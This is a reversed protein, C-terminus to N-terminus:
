SFLDGLSCRQRLKYTEQRACHVGVFEQYAYAATVGHGFTALQFEVVDWILSCVQEKLSVLHYNRQELAVVISISARSRTQSFAEDKQSMGVMRPRRYLLIRRCSMKEAFMGTGAMVLEVTKLVDVFTFNFGLGVEKTRLIFNRASPICLMAVLTAYFSVAGSVAFALWSIPGEMEELTKDQVIPVSKKKCGETSELCLNPNGTFAGPFRLFGQKNPVIGSFGNYSLNLLKLNQLTSINEPIPGSLSNHSLDLVRLSTMKALSPLKGWLFNYSLNLCELGKLDFLGVPIGGRLLNNSLDIGILSSPDFSFRLDTVGSISIYVKIERSPIAVLKIERTTATSGDLVRKNFNVSINFNGDPIPGSFKNRSFDIMEIGQFTFLWSPLPGNFNNRSLSLYKLNSWKAIADNLTGSLYNASIDVIELSSCGALTMPIEGSIRNNSIDLVKLSNLADLEPQIEGTLNNNGLVLALLQFCGVINLPISGSLLNHSLDIVQLYTLNGIRRPIEGTLFNHSLCLAQLSRLETFKLPIEGRFRNHSLALLILGSKETVDAIRSPLHGSLANFSLDLVALKESFLLHPSVKYSLSNHSLNLYRLGQLFSICTPIGGVISNGSLDLVELSQVSASFCPLTGSFQNSRMNLHVLSSRFDSVNGTLLNDELKVDKISRSDFLSQPVEGIFSCFSLDIKELKTSFNGIWYPITGGLNDNESLRLEKLNRFKYFKAPVEGSFRNRGFDLVQLESLSGLCAPIPGHFWNGFLVLNVLLSLSCLSPHIQGSLNASTLNLTLVRGSRPECAVGTWNSCDPGVWNALLRDPDTLRSKFLLLSARDANHIVSATINVCFLLSLFLTSFILLHLHPNNPNEKRQAM